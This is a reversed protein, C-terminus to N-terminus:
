GQSGLPVACQPEQSTVAVFVKPSPGCERTKAEPELDGLSVIHFKLKGVALVFVFTYTFTFTYIHIYIFTFIYIKYM